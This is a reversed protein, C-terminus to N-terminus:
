AYGIGELLKQSEYLYRDYDIDDPFQKPFEMCPKAGDSRPVKNGNKAYVLEGETGRAYYWRISKGLFETEGAPSLENTAVIYANATSIPSERKSGITRYWSGSAFPVFGAMQILEEQTGHKPPPLRNWVKVAGGKVNRISVFKTMDRCNYITDHMPIKHILWQELAEVCIQNTPNKHFRPEIKTPDSWPNAFAGKTKVEIKGDADAQKIAIYNNVDRSGLLTYITEETEFNTVKEWWKIIETYLPTLHNPVKMTVGDTNASVVPIGNLEMVEILMLLSLQGTITVQILLDPAYLASFMSGLKGFSGNITIKLSEAIDKQKAKKAAIRRMVINRYIDLFGRGLHTPYLEQNLVIWPYYSVVDRDRLTYQSDTVHTTSKENSHLGGIGFKYLGEAIKIELDSISQPLEISGHDAVIFDTNEIVSKVYQMLPTQFQMYAPMKYRYTTGPEIKPPRPQYGNLRHLEDVIVAEAVQADSKSRLDMGYEHSMIGRLDLQPRLCERLLKTHALDNVNYHKVIIAQEYSLMTDPPFPLDQMRKTHQRGAYIKLSARLPAVEILDIHNCILKKCKFRRLLDSPRTGNVIMEDSAAKLVANNHGYIALTVMPQDYALSNFGVICFNEMVWRLKVTDLTPNAPSLEFSMIKGTRMSEFSCLWYNSYTEVDFILEEDAPACILDYETLEPIVANMAETLGPLYGPEEWTRRPPMRKEKPLKALKVAPLDEWFFGLADSRM